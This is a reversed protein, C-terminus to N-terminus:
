WGFPNSVLSSLGVVNSLSGFVNLRNDNQVGLLRQNQYHRMMDEASVQALQNAYQRRGLLVGTQNYIDLARKAETKVNEKQVLLLRLWRLVNPDESRYELYVDFSILPWRYDWDIKLFLYEKLYDLKKVYDM